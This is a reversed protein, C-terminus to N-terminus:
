EGALELYRLNPQFNVECTSIRNDKLSLIQSHICIVLSYTFSSTLTHVKLTQSAACTASKEERHPIRIFLLIDNEGTPAPFSTTNGIGFLKQWSGFDVITGNWGPCELQWRHTSKAVPEPVHCSHLVSSRRCKDFEQLLWNWIRKLRTWQLMRRICLLVWREVVNMAIYAYSVSRYSFVEDIKKFTPGVCNLCDAAEDKTLVRPLETETPRFTLIRLTKLPVWLSSHAVRSPQGKNVISFINITCVDVDLAFATSTSVRSGRFSRIWIWWVSNLVIFYHVIVWMFEGENEFGEEDAM